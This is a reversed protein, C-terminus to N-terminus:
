GKTEPLLFLVFLFLFINIGFFLFFSKFGAAAILQPFFQNVIIDPCPPRDVFGQPSGLAGFRQSRQLAPIPSSKSLYESAVNQTQSAAGVAYSRVNM